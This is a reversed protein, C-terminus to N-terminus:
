IPGDHFDDEDEKLTTYLRQLEEACTRASSQRIDMHLCARMFAPQSFRGGVMAKEANKLLEMKSTRTLALRDIATRCQPIIASTDIVSTNARAERAAVLGNGFQHNHARVEAARDATSELKHQYQIKDNSVSRRTDSSTNSALRKAPPRQNAERTRQEDQREVLRELREISHQMDAMMEAQARLETQNKEGQVQNSSFSLGLADAMGICEKIDNTNEAINDGMDAILRKNHNTEKLSSAKYDVIDKATIDVKKTIVVMGKANITGQNKATIALKTNEAVTTAKKPIISNPNWTYGIAGQGAVVQQELSALSTELQGMRAASKGQDKKEDSVVETPSILTISNVRQLTSQCNLQNNYFINSEHLQTLESTWRVAHSTFWNIEAKNFYKHHKNLYTKTWEYVDSFEDNAHIQDVIHALIAPVLTRRLTWKPEFHNKLTVNLDKAFIMHARTNLTGTTEPLTSTDESTSVPSGPATTAHEASLDMTITSDLQETLDQASYDEENEVSNKGRKPTRKTTVKTEGKLKSPTFQM